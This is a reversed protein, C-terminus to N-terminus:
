KGILQTAIPTFMGLLATKQTAGLHISDAASGLAATLADVGAADLGKGSLATLLDVTGRPAPMHSAKAIENVLGDKVQSIAAADFSKSLMADAGLNAGFADALQTVNSMGGLQNVLSAGTSMASSAAPAATKAATAASSMTSASSKSASQSCGSLPALVALMLLMTLAANGVTKM